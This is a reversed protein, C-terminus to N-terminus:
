RSCYAEMLVSLFIKDDLQTARPSLMPQPWRIRSDPWVWCGDNGSSSLEPMRSFTLRSMILIEKPFSEDKLVVTIARGTDAATARYTSTYTSWAGPLPSVGVAYTDVEGVRLDIFGPDIDDHRVGLDATLTYVRGAVATAALLQSISGGNSYAVTNGDPVYDFYRLNGHYDIRASFQGNTGGSNTWGPINSTSFSCGAGCSGPVGSGDNTFPLGGSPLTEFSPNAVTVSGAWAAAAPLALALSVIVRLYM